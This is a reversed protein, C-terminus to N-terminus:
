AAEMSRQQIPKTAQKHSQKRACCPGVRRRFGLVHRFSSGRLPIPKCCAGCQLTFSYALRHTM